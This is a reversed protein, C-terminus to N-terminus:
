LDAEGVYGFDSPPSGLKWRATTNCLQAMGEDSHSVESARMGEALNCGKVQSSTGPQLGAPPKANCEM